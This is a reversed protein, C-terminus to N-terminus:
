RSGNLKTLHQARRRHVLVHGFLGEDLCPKAFNKDQDRSHGHNGACIEELCRRLVLIPYSIQMSDPADRETPVTAPDSALLSASAIPNPSSNPTRLEQQAKKMGSWLASIFEVEFPLLGLGL